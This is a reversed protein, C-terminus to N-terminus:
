EQIYFHIKKLSILFNSFFYEILISINTSFVGRPSHPARQDILSFKFLSKKKMFPSKINEISKSRKIIKM